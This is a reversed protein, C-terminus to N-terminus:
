EISVFSDVVESSLSVKPVIAFCVLFLVICSTCLATAVFRSYSFTMERLSVSTLTDESTNAFNSDIVTVNFFFCSHRATSYSSIKSFHLISSIVLSISIAVSVLALISSVKSLISSVKSLISANLFPIYVDFRIITISLESM